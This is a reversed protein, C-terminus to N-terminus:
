KSYNNNSYILGLPFFILVATYIAGSLDIEKISLAKNKGHFFHSDFDYSIL